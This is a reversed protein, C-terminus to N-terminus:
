VHMVYICLIITFPCKQINGYMTHICFAAPITTYKVYLLLNNQLHAM